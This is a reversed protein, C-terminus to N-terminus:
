HLDKIFKATVAMILLCAPFILSTWDLGVMQSNKVAYPVWAVFLTVLVASVLLTKLQYFDKLQLWPLEYNNLFAIESLFLKSFGISFIIFVFGILFRDLSEVLMVGPREELSGTAFHYYAEISYYIGSIFFFLANIFTTLVVLFIALNLIRQM